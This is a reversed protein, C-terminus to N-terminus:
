KLGEAIRKRILFARQSNVTKCECEGNIYACLGGDLSKCWSRGKNLWCAGCNIQGQLTDMDCFCDRRGKRGVQMLGHSKGDDGIQNEMRFVSERYGIAVLLGVPIKFKLSASEFARALEQAEQNDVTRRYHGNTCLHQIYEATTLEGANLQDIISLLMFLVVILIITSEIIRNVRM